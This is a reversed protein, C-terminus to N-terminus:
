VGREVERQLRALEDRKAQARGDVISHRSAFRAELAAPAHGKLGPNYSDTYEALAPGEFFSWYRVVRPDKGTSSVDFAPVDDGRRSAEVIGMTSNRAESRANREAECTGVAQLLPTEVALELGRISHLIARHKATAVTLDDARAIAAKADHTGSNVAREAIALEAHASALNALADDLPGCAAKAPALLPRVRGLFTQLHAGLRNDATKLDKEAQAVVLDANGFQSAYNASSM